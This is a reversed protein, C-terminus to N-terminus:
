EKMLMEVCETNGLSCAIDLAKLGVKDRANVDAGNKLLFFLIATRNYEAALHLPTVMNSDSTHCNINLPTMLAMVQEHNGCRIAQFLEEKKYEGTLVPKAKPHAVNIPTKGDVTTINPDAGNQLLVLCVLVKGNIAAQHLPTYNWRDRANVYSGHKLLISVVDSRGYSCADHLPTLGGLDKTNVDARNEILYKIVFFPGF